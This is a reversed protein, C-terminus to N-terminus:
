AYTVAATVSERAGLGNLECANALRAPVSGHYRRKPFRRHFCTNLLNRQTEWAQGMALPEYSPALAGKLGSPPLEPELGEDRTTPEKSKSPALIARAM